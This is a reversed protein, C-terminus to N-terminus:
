HAGLPSGTRHSAPRELAVSIVASTPSSVTQRSALSRRHRRGEHRRFSPVRRDVAYDAYFWAGEATLPRARSGDATVAHIRQDTFNSVYATGDAVVYAAGGYEHIRSRVNLTADTVDAITGDARRRVLVNRGGEQPRGEIWYIDDGDISVYGLRLGQTAVVAATIPSKWTGFSSVIPM